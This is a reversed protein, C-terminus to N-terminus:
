GKGWRGFGLLRWLFFMARMRLSLGSTRIKQPRWEARM